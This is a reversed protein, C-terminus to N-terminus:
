LLKSTCTKNETHLSLVFDCVCVCRGVDACMCLLFIQLYIQTFKFICHPHVKKKKKCPM